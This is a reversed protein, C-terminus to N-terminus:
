DGNRGGRLRKLLRNILPTLRTKVLRFWVADYAYYGVTKFANNVLIFVVASSVGALSSLLAFLALEYVVVYVRYVIAKVILERHPPRSARDM